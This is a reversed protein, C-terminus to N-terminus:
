ELPYYANPDSLLGKPLGLDTFLKDADGGFSQILEAIGKWAGARVLDQIDSM